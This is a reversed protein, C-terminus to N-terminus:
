AGARTKAASPAVRESRAPTTLRCTSPSMRVPAKTAATAASARGVGSATPTLTFVTRNVAKFPEIFELNLVVREGPTTELVEMRGRGTRKGSWTYHAGVGSSPTSVESAVGTEMRFFPSWDNWRALDEAVAFVKAPSANFTAAAIISFPRGM